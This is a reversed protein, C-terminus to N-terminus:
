GATLSIGGREVAAPLPRALKAFQAYGDIFSALHVAVEGEVEMAFLTDANGTVAERLPPRPNSWFGWSTWGRSSAPDWNDM